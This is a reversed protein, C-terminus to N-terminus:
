LCNINILCQALEYCVLLDYSVLRPALCLKTPSVTLAILKWSKSGPPSRLVILEALSRKPWELDYFTM